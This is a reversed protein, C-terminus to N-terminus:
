GSGVPGTSEAAPLRLREALLELAAVTAAACVEGPDGDLMRHVPEAGDETGDDVALFVTGPEQGDQAQPGGAGTTALAVDAGLMTRVGAAMARAAAASVVPGEPVGLVEHKVESSYAVLGGRFWEAAGESASLSATVMGGTLSEAVAVRRGTARALDAIEAALSAPDRHAV